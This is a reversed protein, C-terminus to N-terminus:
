RTMGDTRARALAGADFTADLADVDRLDAGDLITGQCRAARLSAGRLTASRLDARELDASGLRAERLMARALVADTLLVRDLDARLWDVEVLRARTLDARRLAIDKGRSAELDADLLTAGEGSAGELVVSRLSAGDLRAGDFRCRALNARDLTAGELRARSLDAGELSASGLDAGRLDAGSLDAGDLRAGRLDARALVARPMRAGRLDRRALEAGELLAGDLSAERLAESTLRGALLRQVLEAVRAAEDPGQPLPEALRPPPAVVDGSTPICLAGEAAAPAPESGRPGVIAPRGTVPALRAPPAVGPPLEDVTEEIWARNESSTSLARRLAELDVPPGTPDLPSGVWSAAAQAPQAARAFPLVPGAAAPPPGIDASAPPAEVPPESPAALVRTRAVSRARPALTIQIVLDDLTAGGPVSSTARWTISLTDSDTEVALCQPLLAVDAAQGDRHRWTALLDWAPIVASQAGNPAGPPGAGFGEVVVVDGVALDPIWQDYPADLFWRSDFGQPLRAGQAAPVPHSGLLSRRQTSEPPLPALATAPESTAGRLVVTKDLLTSSERRVMVRARRLGHADSPARSRGVLTLQASPLLPALEASGAVLPTMRLTQAARPSPGASLLPLTAKAVITVFPGADTSWGVAGVTAAPGFTVLEITPLGARM